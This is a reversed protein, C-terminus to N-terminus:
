VEKCFLVVYSLLRRHVFPYGNNLRYSTQYGFHLVKYIFPINLQDSFAFCPTSGLGRNSWYSYFSFIDRGTVRNINFAGLGVVIKNIKLLTTLVISIFLQFGIFPIMVISLNLAFCKTMSESDDQEKFIKKRKIKGLLKM